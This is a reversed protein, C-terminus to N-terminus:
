PAGFRAAIRAANTKRDFHTTAFVRAAKGKRARLEADLAEELARALAEHDGPEVVWGGDCQRIWMGISSDQSGLFIVPRGILFIGQLKSPVMAGDWAPDLSALHVDASALHEALKGGPVYGGLELPVDPHEAKFREIEVRRRGNGHFKWLFRNGQSAAATLFEEFRHGLGMNGSYMLVVRTDSKTSSRAHRSEGSPLEGAPNDTAGWLPVWDLERPNSLHRSTRRAMDPGLTLIMRCRPGGFGWRALLEFCGILLRNGGLMGHAVMVDPYLDMVWHAHDAGRLKSLLRALVSLYPPTTLSVIRDPAPTMTALRAAASLYFTLYDTMKGFHSRRGFGTAGLRVVSIGDHRQQASCPSPGSCDDSADAYGGRACLVTVKHGIEMLEDAVASLMLGTPAADPPFYQNILVIHM